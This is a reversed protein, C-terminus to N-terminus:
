QQEATDREVLAYWYVDGSEILAAVHNENRVSAVVAHAPQGTFETLFRVNRLARDTDRQDATYSIEVTIYHAAGSGDSAEIILDASRFSTLENNPIRGVARQAMRVLDERPVVRVYDLGLSVAIAAADRTAYDRAYAFRFNKIDGEIRTLRRVFAKNFQKQETNIARQEEVFADMRENFQKQETNIERQEEIFADVRANTQRQEEIFADVRANTQRQEAVFATMQDIFATMRGVFAIFQVPLQMLEDSLIIARVAEKWQPNEELARLFEEPTNFTTM